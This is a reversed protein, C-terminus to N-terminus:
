LEWDEEFGPLKSYPSGLLRVTECWGLARTTGCDPDNHCAQCGFDYEDDYNQQVAPVHSHEDLIRLKMAVDALVAAPDNAAVFVAQQMWEWRAGACGEEDSYDDCLWVGSPVERTWVVEDAAHVEPSWSGAKATWDGSGSGIANNALKETDALRARVYAILDTM